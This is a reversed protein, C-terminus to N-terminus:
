KSWASRVNYLTIRPAALANVLSNSRRVTTRTTQRADQTHPTPRNGVVVPINEESQSEETETNDEIVSEETNEHEDMSDITDDNEPESETIEDSTNMSSVSNQGDLHGINIDNGLDLSERGRVAMVGENDEMDGEDEEDEEDEEEDEEERLGAGLRPKM